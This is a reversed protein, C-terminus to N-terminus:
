YILNIFWLNSPCQNLITFKTNEIRSEYFTHWHGCYWLDPKYKEWVLDLANISPDNVPSGLIMRQFNQQELIRKPITHSIVIDIKLDPLNQIDNYNIIEEPWWSVGQIRLNKDISDAGGMFLVNRGDPLTLFSGRPMYYINTDISIPVRGYKKVKLTLDEHNEHNGDCWYIKTKKPNIGYQNFKNNSNSHINHLHPWWGFDGCQLIIDPKYLDILRNLDGWRCHLDGCIIINM